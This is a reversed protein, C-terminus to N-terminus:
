FIAGVEFAMTWQKPVDKLADAEAKSGSNADGPAVADTMFQGGFWFTEYRYNLGAIIRHRTIRTPNFVFTNNFDLPSGGCVPQGDAVPKGPLAGPNLTGFGPVNGGKYGCYALPDTNPTSDILGSDGFIRLFQYGVYPTLVASDAIPLPKSLQADFSAVTLQMEPTGTITRVGGGVAVDPLIGLFGTRFGELLAWRVDAGGAIISTHAVYGVNGTIEFGFPFGKRIKLMYVQLMSDPGTNKISYKKSNQDQPGQTGDQWYSANHDISTFAGEISLHFGGYGTTRASHMATPALAFGLQNVLRIWEPNNPRCQVGGGAGPLSSCRIMAQGTPDNPDPMLTLRELAPDMTDAAAQSAISLVSSALAAAAIWAFGRM